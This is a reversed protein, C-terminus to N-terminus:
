KKIIISTINCILLLSVEIALLILTAVFYGNDILSEPSLCGMIFEVFGIISFLFSLSIVFADKMCVTKLLYILVTTVLVVASTYCVKFPTYASLVLGLVVNLTLILLSILLTAKKM